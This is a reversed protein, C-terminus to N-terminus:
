WATRREHVESDSKFRLVITIMNSKGNITWSSLTNDILLCDLTIEIYKPLKGEMALLQCQKESLIIASILLITKLISRGCANM